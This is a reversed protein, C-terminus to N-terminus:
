LNVAWTFSERPLVSVALQEMVIVPEVSLRPQPEQPDEPLAVTPTAYLEASVTLPPLPDYVNEIREPESGFPIVSFELVPWIEPVGVTAPV